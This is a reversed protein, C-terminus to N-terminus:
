KPPRPGGPFRDRGGDKQLEKPEDDNTAEALEARLKAYSAKVIGFAEETAKRNTNGNEFSDRATRKVRGLTRVTTLLDKAHSYFDRDRIDVYRELPDLLARCKEHTADILNADLNDNWDSPLETMPELARRIESALIQKPLRSPREGGGQIFLMRASLHDPCAQAIEGLRQRVYRNAVYQTVANSGMKDRIEAFRVSAEALEGSGDKASYEVLEKLNDALVVEYKMFFAPDEIALVSPLLAEAERPLVLRGGPGSSLSRLKDWARTPMKLSGDPQVIGMVTAKPERDSVASDVLVATAASLTQRNKSVLYDEGKGITLSVVGGMSFDDDITKLAAIVGNGTQHLFEGGETNELRLGFPRQDKEESEIWAKMSIVMPKLILKESDKDYTWLPTSVAAASRVIGAEQTETPLAPEEPTTQDPVRTIAKEEYSALVPVWGTWEGSDGKGRHAESKPHSPDASAMADSLCLGLAQGDVGAESNELWSVIQWIRAKASEIETADPVPSPRDQSFGILLERAERNAPDLAIALALSQSSAHRAAASELGLTKAILLMHRSLGTMTDVDLPLRDRRFPVPGEGPRPFPGSASAFPMALVFCLLGRILLRQM